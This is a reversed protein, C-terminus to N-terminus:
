RTVNIRIHRSYWGGNVGVEVTVFHTGIRNGHLASFDLTPLYAGPVAQGDHVWRVYDFSGAATIYASSALISVSQDADIGAAGDWFGTFTLTIAATGPDRYFVWWGSWEDGVWTYTGARRGTSNYFILFSEGHNGMAHIYAWDPAPAIDVDGPITISTLPNGWFAWSGISTVADPIVVTTLHNDFFAGTGISTVGGPIVVSTLQNSYFMWGGISTVDEPIVVSSLQNWAFVQYGLSTVGEPIVVTTLHNDAFAAEGISTVGEPIIVATLHNHWFAWDGISIIGEPIVVTTLHNEAFALEGISTIGEPIVVTTLQNLQFAWDGIHTVGDPIVVSTLQRRSFVGEGCVWGDVISTVVVGDIVSPIVIDTSGGSFGIIAGDWGQFAFGYESWVAYLTVDDIVQFMEGPMFEPFTSGLDTSWGRFAFWYGDIDRDAYWVPLPIWDGSWAEISGPLTSGLYGNGDFTIEAWVPTAGPFEWLIQYAGGITVAAGWGFDTFVIHSGNQVWNRVTNEDITYLDYNWVGIAVLAADVLARLCDATDYSWSLRHIENFWAVVEGVNGPYVGRIGEEDRLIDFHGPQVWSLDWWAGDWSELFYDLFSRNFGDPTFAEIWRSTMGAYINLIRSITVNRGDNGIMVLHARYQGSELQLVGPVGPLVPFYNEIIDGDLNTIRIRAPAGSIDWGFWGSGGPIPFLGVTVAAPLGAGVAFTAPVATRAAAVRSGAIGPDPLFATVTLEWDGVALDLVPDGNWDPIYVNNGTNLHVLDLTFTEFDDAGTIAPMITRATDRGVTLLLFGTAPADENPRLIDRCGALLFALLLLAAIKKAAPWSAMTRFFTRM